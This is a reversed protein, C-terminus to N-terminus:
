AALGMIALSNSLYSTYTGTLWLVGLEGSPHNAVSAPYISDDSGSTLATGGDWTLGNDATAYRWVQAVGSLSRGIYAKNPAVPDLCSVSGNGATDVGVSSLVTGTVWVSGNWRAFRVQSDGALDITYLFAPLSGAGLYGDMVWAPGVSSDYVETIGSSPTHGTVAPPDGIGTGDSAHYDTDDAYFHFIKSSASAPNDDSVFFDIRWQGDTSIKWYAAQGSSYIPASTSWTSGGDTSKVYYLKTSTGSDSRHWIYIPDNTEALRQMIFPYTFAGSTRANIEAGFASADEPNTSIRVYLTAGNHASYTVVLRKDSDRVLISPAGHTDSPSDLAAHLVFASSVVHTSHDYSRIEANGNSGDVYGFYTKGNYYVAKPANIQTWGGDPATTLAVPTYIAPVSFGGSGGRPIRRALM